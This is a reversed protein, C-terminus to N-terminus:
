AECEDEQRRTAGPIPPPMRDIFSFSDVLVVRDPDPYLTANLFPM